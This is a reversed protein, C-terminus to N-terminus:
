VSCRDLQWRSGNSVSVLRSAPTGDVVLLYAIGKGGARPLNRRRPIFQTMGGGGPRQPRESGPLVVPQNEGRQGRGAMWLCRTGGDGRIGVRVTVFCHISGNGREDEGIRHLLRGNLSVNWEYNSRERDFSGDRDAPCRFVDNNTGLLPALVEQILPLGGAVRNTEDGSARARPLRGEHDDAHIRVTMGIQRLNSVCRISQAKRKGAALAPLLLGALIAIVAIVVLLEVLTFGARRNHIESKPNQMKMLRWSSLLETCDAADRSLRGCPWSARFDESWLARFWEVIGMGGLWALPIAFHLRYYPWYPRHWLHVLMVTALLVVPVLLDWQRRWGIVTVGVAAPIWFEFEYLM